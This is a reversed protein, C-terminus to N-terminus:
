KPTTIFWFKKFNGKEQCEKLLASLEGDNRKGKLFPNRNVLLAIMRKNVPKYKTGQRERNIGDTIKSILEDRYNKYKPKPETRLFSSLPKLHDPFITM